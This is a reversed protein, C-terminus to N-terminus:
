FGQTPTKQIHSPPLHANDQSVISLLLPLIHLCDWISDMPTSCSGGQSSGSSHCFGQTPTKQILSPPPLRSSFPFSTFPLGFRIWLRHSPLGLDFGYDYLIFWGPVFWKLALIGSYTNETHSQPPLHTNGQSVILLLFPLIHCSVLLEESSTHLSLLNVDNEM